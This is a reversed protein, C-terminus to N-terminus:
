GLEASTVRLDKQMFFRQHGTPCQDLMGFVRYGHREYFPRAQFSYTELWAHHCERQRAEAEARVLLRSGLGRRRATEAVALGDIYMWGRALVVHMGGLIGGQGDRVFIGLSQPRWVDIHADNYARIMAFIADVDAPPPDGVLELEVADESM